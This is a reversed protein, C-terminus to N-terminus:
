KKKKMAIKKSNIKIFIKKKHFRLDVIELNKLEKFNGIKNIAIEKNEYPLKFLIKNIILNWRNNETIIIKSIEKELKKNKSLFNKIEEINQTILKGELIILNYNKPDKIEYIIKGKDSILFNKKNENLIAFENHEKINIVIENPFIKRIFIESIWNIEKLLKKTKTLDYSILNDSEYLNSNIINKILNLDSNQRGELSIKKIEFFDNFNESFKNFFLGIKDNKINRINLNDNMYFCFYLILSIGTLLSIKLFFKNKIFEFM